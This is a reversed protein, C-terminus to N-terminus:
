NPTSIIQKVSPFGVFPFDVKVDEYYRRADEDFMIYARRDKQRSIANGCFALNHIMEEENMFREGLLNVASTRSTLTFGFGDYLPAAAVLHMIIPSQAAGVDVGDEHMEPLRRYRTRSFTREM